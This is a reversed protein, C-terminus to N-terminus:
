VMITSPTRVVGPAHDWFPTFKPIKLLRECPRFLPDFKLRRYCDLLKCITPTDGPDNKLKPFNPIVSVMKREIKSTRM